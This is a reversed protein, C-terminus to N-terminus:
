KDERLAALEKALSKGLGSMSELAAERKLELLTRESSSSTIIDADVRADATAVARVRGTRVDILAGEAAAYVEVTKGPIVFIPLIFWNLNSWENFYTDSNEGRGFVLVSDCGVRAAAYRVSPLDARPPLFMRPVVRASEVSSGTEKRFAELEEPTLSEAAFGEGCRRIEVVAVRPPGALGPAEVLARLIDEETVRPAGSGKEIGVGPGRLPEAGEGDPDFVGIDIQPRELNGTSGCGAAIVALLIAPLPRM